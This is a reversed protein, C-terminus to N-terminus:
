QPGRREDFVEEAVKRMLVEADSLTIVLVM